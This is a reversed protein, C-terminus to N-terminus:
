AKWTNACMVCTVVITAPEDASRMQSEMAITEESTCKRCKFTGPVTEIKNKFIETDIKAKYRSFGMGPSEEFIYEDKSNYKRRTLATYVDDFPYKDFDGLIMYIGDRDRDNDISFFKRGNSLTIDTLKSIQDESLIPVGDKRYSALIEDIVIISGLAQPLSQYRVPDLQPASLQVTGQSM